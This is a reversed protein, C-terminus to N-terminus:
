DDISVVQDESDELNDIPELNPMDNENNQLSDSEEPADWRWGCHICKQHRNGDDSISMMPKSCGCRRIEYIDMGNVGASLDWMYSCNLCLYKSNNAMVRPTNCCKRQSM